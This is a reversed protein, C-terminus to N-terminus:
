QVLQPRKFVSEVLTDANRRNTKGIGSLSYRVHVGTIGPPFGEENTLLKATEKFVKRVQPADPIKDYIVGPAHTEPHLKEKIPLMYHEWAAISANTVTKRMLSAMHNDNLNAELAIVDSVHYYFAAFVDKSIQDVWFEQQHRPSQEAYRLGQSPIAMWQHVSDPPVPNCDQVAEIRSIMTAKWRRIIREQAENGRKAIIPSNDVGNELATRLHQLYAGKREEFSKFLADAHERCEMGNRPLSQSDTTGSRVRHAELRVNKLNTLFDNHTVTSSVWSIFWSKSTDNTKTPLGIAGNQLRTSLAKCKKVKEEFDTTDSGTAGSACIRANAESTNNYRFFYVKGYDKLVCETISGTWTVEETPVGAAPALCTLGIGGFRSADTLWYDPLPPPIDPLPCEADDLSLM